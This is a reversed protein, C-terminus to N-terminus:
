RRRAFITVIDYLNLPIRMRGLRTRAFTRVLRALRPTGVLTQSKHAVYGVSYSSWVYKTSLLEFGQEELYRALHDRMFFFNHHEPTLLHWRRGSFRAVASSADGTSLALIGSKRLLVAARELEERPDIVHELYDWMTVADFTGNLDANLFPGTLVPLRLHERAWSTMPESVDVGAITWGARRAEDLFFGAACGVDLLRGPHAYRELLRLRRQANRRHEPEDALYDAYGQGEVDDAPARFYSEGYITRLADPEPLDARFLLSCSPCRLIEYGDKEWARDRGTALTGCLNCHAAREGAVRAASM